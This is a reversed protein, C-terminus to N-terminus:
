RNGVGGDVKGQESGRGESQMPICAIRRGSDFIKTAGEILMTSFISRFDM